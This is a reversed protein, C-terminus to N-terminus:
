GRVATEPAVVPVNREDRTVEIQEHQEQALTFGATPWRGASHRRIVDPSSMYAAYDIEAQDPALPRLVFMPTSLTEPVDRDAPFFTM